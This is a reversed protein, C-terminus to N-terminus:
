RAASQQRQDAPPDTDEERLPGGGGAQLALGEVQQEQRAPVAAGRIPNRPRWRRRETPFQIERSVRRNWPRHVRPQDARQLGLPGGSDGEVDEEFALGGQLGVEVQLSRQCFRPVVDEAHAEHHDSIWSEQLSAPYLRDWGSASAAAISPSTL